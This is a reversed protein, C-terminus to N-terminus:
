ECKVGEAGRVVGAVLLRCGAAGCTRKIVMLGPRGGFTLADVTAPMAAVGPSIMM